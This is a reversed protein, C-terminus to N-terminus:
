CQNQLRSINEANEAHLECLLKKVYIGSSSPLIQRGLNAMAEDQEIRRERLELVDKILNADQLRIVLPYNEILEDRRTRTYFDRVPKWQIGSWFVAQQLKRGNMVM